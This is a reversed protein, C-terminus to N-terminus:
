PFSAVVDVLGEEAKGDAQDGVSVDLPKTLAVLDGFGLRVMEASGSFVSPPEFGADTVACCTRARSDSSTLAAFGPETTVASFSLFLSRPRGCWYLDFTVNM